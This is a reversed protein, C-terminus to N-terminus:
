CSLDKQLAPILEQWERSSELYRQSRDILISKNPPLFEQFTQHSKQTSTRAHQLTQCVGAPPPPMGGAQAFLAMARYTDEQARFFHELAIWLARASVNAEQGGLISAMLAAKGIALAAGHPDDLAM